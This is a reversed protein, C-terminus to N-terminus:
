LGLLTQIMDDATQVVRANAAFAQEILLLNQMEQDTDVGNQLELGRLTDFRATAFSAEADAALRDTAVISLLDAALGSFSRAGTIFGGSVSTRPDTLAIQLASLLGSNGTPGPAVAGLGDRLRWLAGGRAPDVLANVSIRESLGAEDVALFAAGADTFLGPAGAARSADLAPDSFREVLNRAVADLQAQATPALEDRVSFQAALSGGAFLGGDAASIANGNLTLGSLSGGALTMEPVVIGAPAFGLKAPRGDLLMAGGLSFLAIQGNEREIERLPVISSISDVLRQRQDMLASSERGISTLAVIRKNMEAIQDLAQNVQAVEAGIRADASSRVTQIDRSTASLQSALATASDFVSTLRAESEPRSAAEILAADLNAIRSALSGEADPAGLVAELRALFGQRVDREGAGAEAVRRDLMLVQDVVRRAGVVSVGQGSDGTQRAALVIERRAYGETMANAVNSSVLDAARSAATLGSLANSLSSSISM